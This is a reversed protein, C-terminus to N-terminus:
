RTRAPLFTSPRNSSWRTTAFWLPPRGVRQVIAELADSPVVRELRERGRGAADADEPPIVAAAAERVKGDAIARVAEELEPSANLRTRVRELRDDSM